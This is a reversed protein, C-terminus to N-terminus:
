QARETINLREFANSFFDPPGFNGSKLALCVGAAAGSGIVQTWPVGPAIEPGVDLAAIGLGEVVAGSTEGGAVILRTVNGAILERAIAAFTVEIRRGISLEHEHNGDAALIDRAASTYILSPANTSQDKFWDIVESVVNEGRLLKEVPVRLSPWTGRFCEVQELTRRSCSGALVACRGTRPSLAGPVHSAQSCEASGAPRAPALKRAMQYGLASGGTVLPADIVAEAITELNADDISDLVVLPKGDAVCSLLAQSVQSAGGRIIDHTILGVSAKSQAALVRVLNADRMPNLPHAQMGSENLLANGVFLHGHFVRRGNEPFSPAFPTFPAQLHEQLAEAVPGINGASTSDFTSCYKFYIRSAGLRRLGEAAELSDRVAIAADVSRTKLAVVIAEADDARLMLLGPVGIVLITRLGGRILMGALDTAGTFDDAIAAFRLEPLLV